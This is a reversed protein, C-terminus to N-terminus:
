CGVSRREGTFTLKLQMIALVVVVIMFKLIAQMLFIKTASKKDFDGACYQTCKQYSWNQVPALTKGDSLQM